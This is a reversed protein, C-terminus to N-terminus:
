ARPAAEIVTRGAKTGGLECSYLTLKPTTSPAEIETQTPKITYLKTVVYAYRKGQYNVFVPDGTRVQDLYYFPSKVAVEHPNLGISFRHAAIIFNGGAVPNGREPHRWWSGKNLAERGGSAYPINVGIKPIILRNQDLQAPPLKKIDIAQRDFLFPVSPTLALLLVYCGGVVLLGGLGYPLYSRITM